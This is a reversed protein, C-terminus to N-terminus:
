HHCQRAKEAQWITKNMKQDIPDFVGKRRRFGNKPKPPELDTGNMGIYVGESRFIQAM